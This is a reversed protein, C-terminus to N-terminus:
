EPKWSAPAERKLPVMTTIDDGRRMAINMRFSNGIRESREVFLAAIDPPCIEEVTERFLRLWRMFHADGLEPIAMHKPMPRGNYRGTGLLMSSWFDAIKSLHDPWEADPIVRNFVPGIVDDRRARAYFEDVVARIMADDLGEPTDWGIRHLQTGVPSRDHPM